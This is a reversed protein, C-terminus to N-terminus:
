NEKISNLKHALEEGLRISADNVFKDIELCEFFLPEYHVVVTAVLKQEPGQGIYIDQSEKRM